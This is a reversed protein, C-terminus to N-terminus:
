PAAGHARLRGCGAAVLLSSVSLIAAGLIAPSLSEAIGQLVLLPLDPSKAWEPNRPINYGVAALDSAVGLLTSWAVSRSLGAIRDLQTPDPRFAFTGAATLCLAGIALLFWMSWGGAVFWDM